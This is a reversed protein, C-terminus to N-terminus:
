GLSPSFPQLTVFTHPVPFDSFTNLVLVVRFCAWVVWVSLSLPPMKLAWVAKCQALAVNM